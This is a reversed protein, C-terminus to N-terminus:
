VLWGNFLFVVKLKTVLDLKQVLQVWKQIQFVNSHSKIRESDNNSNLKFFRCKCLHLLFLKFLISNVVNNSCIKEPFNFGRELEHHIKIGM